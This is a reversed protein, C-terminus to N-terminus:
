DHLDYTNKKKNKRKILSSKIYYTIGGILLISPLTYVMLSVIDFISSITKSSEFYLNILVQLITIIIWVPFLVISFFVKSQNYKKFLIRFSVLTLVIIIIIKLYEIKQNLDIM